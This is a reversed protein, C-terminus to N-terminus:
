FIENITNEIIQISNGTQINLTQTQQNNSLLKFQKLIQTNFKSPTFQQAKQFACDSINKYLLNNASLLLLKECVTEINNSDVLYGQVGDGVLETVGGVPPVIVPKRYYMAELITMGFTEIWENTKSLNMVVDAEKYYPHVNQQAPLLELNSPLNENLFFATIDEQSANLVLRFSLLPLRKACGIFEFVGKYKKLSCLMLVNFNKKYAPNSNTAHKIFTSPLANHIVVSTKSFNIASRLYSSVFIGQTASMNAVFLLFKKLLAPKVSIEHIHYVVKCGRLKAAIAAGFPLLSNIYVVDNRNLYFLLRAFLSSQSYLFLMLTIWKNKNWKYFINHHSVNEIQTLFGKGSPTATFLEVKYGEEVLAELSQRLVFPSGSLDNLLHIAIIKKVQM